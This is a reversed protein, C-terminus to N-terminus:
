KDRHLSWKEKPLLGHCKSWKSMTEVYIGGQLIQKSDRSKKKRLCPFENQDLDIKSLIELEERQLLEM